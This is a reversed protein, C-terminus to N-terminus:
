KKYRLFGIEMDKENNKLKREINNESFNINWLQYYELDKWESQKKLLDFLDYSFIWGSNYIYNKLIIVVDINLKIITKESLKQKPYLYDWMLGKIYNIIELNSYNEPNTLINSQIAMAIWDFSIDKVANQFETKFNEINIIENSISKEFFYFVQENDLGSEIDFLSLSRILNPFNNINM